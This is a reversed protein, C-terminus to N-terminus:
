SKGPSATEVASITPGPIGTAAAADMDQLLNRLGKRFQDFNSQITDRETTRTQLDQKMEEREKAFASRVEELQQQVKLRQESEEALRKRVQERAATVARCEDELKQCRSELQKVKEQSVGGVQSPGQSCGWIGLAAVMLVVLAKSARSM